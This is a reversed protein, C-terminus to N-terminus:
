RKPVRAPSCRRATISPSGTATTASRDACGRSTWATACRRRAPPARPSPRHDLVSLRFPMDTRSRAPCRIRPIPGSSARCTTCRSASAGATRRPGSSCCALLAIAVLAWCMIRPPWLRLLDVRHDRRDAPPRRHRHVGVHRGPQARLRARLAPVSPRADMRRFLPGQGCHPCRKRLGRGLATYVFRRTIPPEKSIRHSRPQVAPGGGTCNDRPMESRDKPDRTDPRACRPRARPQTSRRAVARRRRRVAAAHKRRLRADCRDLRDDVGREPGTQAAFLSVRRLNREREQRRLLGNVREHELPRQRELRAHEGPHSRGDLAGTDMEAHPHTISLYGDPARRARNRHIAEHELHRRRSQQDDLM